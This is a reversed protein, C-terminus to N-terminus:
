FQDRLREPSPRSDQRPLWYTAAEPDRKLRLFDKGLLRALLAMPTILGFYIVGMVVPAMIAGLLLGLRTWARNLPAMLTPRTLALILFALAPPLPLPWWASGKWALYAAFLSLAGTFVFGFSRDSSTEIEHHATAFEHHGIAQKM